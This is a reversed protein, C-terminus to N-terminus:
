AIAANLWLVIEDAYTRHVLIETFDKREVALPAAPEFLAANGTLHDVRIHVIGLQRNMGLIPTADWPTNFSPHLVIMGVEQKWIRAAIIGISGSTVEMDKFVGGNKARIIKQINEPFDDAPHNLLVYQGTLPKVWATQLATTQGFRTRTPVHDPGFQYIEGTNVDGICIADIDDGDAHALMTAVGTSQGREYAKTGDLPDCTFRRGGFPEDEEGEEGILRHDPFSQEVLATYHAQSKIDASTALDDKIGDYHVKAFREFTLAENRIIQIAGEAATRMFLALNTKKAPTNM